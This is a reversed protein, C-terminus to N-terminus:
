QKTVLVNTVPTNGIVGKSFIRNVTFTGPVSGGCSYQQRCSATCTNIHYYDMLSQDSIIAHEDYFINQQPPVVQGDLLTGGDGVTFTSNGAPHQTGWENRSKSHTPTCTARGVRSGVCEFGAFTNPV